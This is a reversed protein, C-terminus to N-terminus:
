QLLAQMKEVVGPTPLMDDGMVLRVFNDALIEDPHILYNTNKGIQRQFSENGRPDIVIGEKGMLVPQWHDAQKDIVLLRFTLYSFLTGGRKAEFDSRAYIVPAAFYKRDGDAIEIYCDVLPADPNTIKREALSGPLVIPPCPRFGIIAYLDRRLAPNHRSLIHFLEHVLLRDLQSPGYALVKDPLAIAAGRTYAANGEEKGSTRLLWITEPLPLKLPALRPRIREISQRVKACTDDDWAKVEGAAFRKWAELDPEDATQLRAQLDFRSLSRTFDDDAILAKAGEAQSAFQLRVGEVLQLHDAAYAAFQGLAGLM